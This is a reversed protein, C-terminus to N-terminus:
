QQRAPLAGCAGLVVRNHLDVRKVTAPTDFKNDATEVEAPAKPATAILGIRECMAGSGACGTLLMAAAAAILINRM